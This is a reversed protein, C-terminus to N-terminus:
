APDTVAAPAEGTVDPAVEVTVAVLEADTAIDTAMVAVPEGTELDVDTAPESRLEGMRGRVRAVARDLRARVSPTRFLMWAGVAIAAVILLVLRRRPRRPAPRVVAVIADRSRGFPSKRSRRLLSWPAPSAAPRVMRAATVVAALLRGADAGSLSAGRRRFTALDVGRLREPREVRSLDVEPIHIGSLARAIEDRKIEPLHLEPLRVEKVTFDPM